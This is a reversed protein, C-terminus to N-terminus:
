GAQYYAQLARGVPTAQKSMVPIEKTEQGLNNAKPTSSTKKAIRPPSAARDAGM